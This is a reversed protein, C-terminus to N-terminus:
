SYIKEAFKIFPSVDIELFLSSLEYEIEDYGALKLGVPLTKQSNNGLAYKQLCLSTVELYAVSSFFRM